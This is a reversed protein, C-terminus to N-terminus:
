RILFRGSIRTTQQYAGENFNEPHRPNWKTQKTSPELQSNKPTQLQNLHQFQNPHYSQFLAEKLIGASFVCLAIIISTTLIRTQM